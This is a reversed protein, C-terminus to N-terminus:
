ADTQDRATQVPASSAAQGTCSGEDPMTAARMEMWRVAVLGKFFDGCPDDMGFEDIDDLVALFRPGPAPIVVQPILVESPVTRHNAATRDDDAKPSLGRRTATMAASAAFGLATILKFLNGPRDGIVRALEEARTAARIPDDAYRRFASWRALKCACWPAVDCLENVLLGTVLTILIAIM